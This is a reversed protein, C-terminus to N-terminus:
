ARGGGVMFHGEKILARGKVAIAATAAEELPVLLEELTILM